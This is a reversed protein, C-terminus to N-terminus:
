PALRNQSQGNTRLRVVRGDPSREFVWTEALSDDDRLARFTDGAVHQLLLLSGAPDPNPLDIVALRSGWPVVAGESAWPQFDYKGVYAELDPSGPGVPAPTLKLGKAMLQRMPKTFHAIEDDGGNGNTMAIIALEDKPM